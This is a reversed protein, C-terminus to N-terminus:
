SRLAESAFFRMSSQETFGLKLQNFHFPIWMVFNNLVSVEHDGYDPPLVACMQTRM